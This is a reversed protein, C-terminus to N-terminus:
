GEPGHGLGVCVLGVRGRMAVVRGQGALDLGAPLVPPGALPDVLRGVGRAGQGGLGSVSDLGGPPGLQEDHVHERIRRTRPQVDAMGEAVDGGVDVGPELPHGPEVHQVGHAEVGEPERGLFVGALGALVGPGVGLGVDGVHGALEVPEPEAVVLAPGDGGGVDAVVAPGLPDEQLYEFAPEIGDLVPGAGYGLQHGLEVGPGAGGGVGAGRAGGGRGAPGFGLVPGGEVLRGPPPHDVVAPQGIHGLHRDVPARSQSRHQGVLLHRGLAPGLPAVM